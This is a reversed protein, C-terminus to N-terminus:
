AVRYSVTLRSGGVNKAKHVDQVHRNVEENSARRKKKKRDDEEVASATEDGDDAEATKKSKKRSTSAKLKAAAAAGTARASQTRDKIILAKSRRRERRADLGAFAPTTLLCHPPRRLSDLEREMAERDEESEFADSKDIKKRRSGGAKAPAASSRGEKTRPAKEEAVIRRERKKSKVEKEEEESLEQGEEDEEAEMDARAVLIPSSTDGEEERAAGGGAAGGKEGEKEEKMSELSGVPSVAAQSSLRGRMAAVLSVKKTREEGGKERGRKGGAYGNEKGEEEPGRGLVLALEAADEPPSPRRRQHPSPAHHPQAPSQSFLVPAFTRTRQDHLYTQVTTRPSAPHQKTHKALAALSLIDSGPTKPVAAPSSPHQHNM